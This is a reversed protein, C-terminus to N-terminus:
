ANKESEPTHFTKFICLGVGIWIFVFSIVKEITLSEGMILGCLIALTPSVYEMIGTTTLPLYYVGLAYLVMPVGTIIGGGILLLQNKFTLSALGNEGTRFFAIFLVALPVMFLIESTTSVISDITLGKKIAAYIAFCLSLSATVYPVGGFGKISFAVGAIVFALVVVHIWSVNERYVLAGFSFMVLPMIYYGLSCELVKGNQVAWLYIIWDAFLFLSAEAEKILLKRETFVAKLQPLKHQFALIALCCVAAWIIRCAMLFFTDMEDCLNWFLPQFGWIALCLLMPPLGKKYALKEEM